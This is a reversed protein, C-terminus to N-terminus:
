LVVGELRQEKTFNMCRLLAFVTNGPATSVGTPPVASYSSLPVSYDTPLTGSITSNAIGLNGPLVSSSTAAPLPAPEQGPATTPAMGPAPQKLSVQFSEIFM